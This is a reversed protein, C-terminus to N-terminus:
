SPAFDIMWCPHSGSALASGRLLLLLVPSPSPLRYCPLRYCPLRAPSATAHSVASRQTQDVPCGVRSTADSKQGCAGLALAAALAVALAAPVPTRQFPRIARATANNLRPM